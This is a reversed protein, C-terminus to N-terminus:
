REKLFEYIANSMRDPAIYEDLYAGGGPSRIFEYRFSDWWRQEKAWCFLKGFGEWTSFNPNKNEYCASWWKGCVCRPSDDFVPDRSAEHWCGGMAETLFRDRDTNM